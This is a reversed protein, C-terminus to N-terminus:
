DKEPQVPCQTYTNIRKRNNIIKSIHPQGVNFINAIITQSVGYDNLFKIEIINENTLIKRANNNSILYLSETKHKKNYFNNGSGTMKKSREKLGRRQKCGLSSGAVPCINYGYKDNASNYKDIYKQEVLTLQSKDEVFEIVGCVFCTNNQNWANQLHISHHSNNILQHFHHSLRDSLHVASGVYIKGNILNKIMYIGSDNKSLGFKM